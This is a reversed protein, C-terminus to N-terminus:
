ASGPEGSEKKAITEDVKVPHYMALWTADGQVTVEKGKTHPYVVDDFVGDLQCDPVHCANDLETGDDTEVFIDYVHGNCWDTYAELFNQADKQRDEYSKAGMNAPDEEWILVGAIQVSDWECKPGTGSISWLCDGHEYHSLIFALGENLKKKLLPLHSSGNSDILLEPDQPHKFNVHARKFSYPIWTGDCEEHPVPPSQSVTLSVVVAGKIERVNDFSIAWRQQNAPDDESTVIQLEDNEYDYSLKRIPNEDVSDSLLGRDALKCLHELLKQVEM